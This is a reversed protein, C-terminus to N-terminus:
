RGHTVSLVLHFADMRVKKKKRLNTNLYQFEQVIIGTERKSRCLNKQEEKGSWYPSIRRKTASQYKIPNETQNNKKNKKRYISTKSGKL